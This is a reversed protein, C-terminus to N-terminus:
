ANFLQGRRARDHRRPRGSGVAKDVLAECLMRLVPEPIDPAFPAFRMQEAMMAVAADRGLENVLARLDRTAGKPMEDM